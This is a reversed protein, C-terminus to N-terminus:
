HPHSGCYKLQVHGSFLMTIKMHTQFVNLSVLMKNENYGHVREMSLMVCVTQNTETLSLITSRGNSKPTTGVLM